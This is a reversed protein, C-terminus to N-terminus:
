LEITEVKVVASMQQAATFELTVIMGDAKRILITSAAHRNNKNAM